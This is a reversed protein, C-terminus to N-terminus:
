PRTKREAEVLMWIPRLRRGTTQGKINVYSYVLQNDAALTLSYEATGKPNKFRVTAGDLPAAFPFFTAPGKVFSSEDSAGISLFGKVGDATASTIIVLLRRGKGNNGAENIWAGVLRRRVPAIEPGPIVFEFAPVGMGYKAALEQLRILDDKSFLDGIQVPARTMNRVTGDVTGGPPASKAAAEPDPLPAKGPEAKGADSNTPVQALHLRPTCTSGCSSVDASREVAPLPVSKPQAILTATPLIFSLFFPIFLIRM